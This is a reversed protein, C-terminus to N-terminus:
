IKAPRFNGNHDPKIEFMVGEFEVVDGVRLVPADAWKAAEREYYGPDGCLVSGELNIWYLAHGLKEAKTVACDPCENEGYVTNNYITYNRVSNFRCKKGNILLLAAGHNANDAILKTITTTM